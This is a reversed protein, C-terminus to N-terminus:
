CVPMGAQISALWGGAVCRLVGSGGAGGMGRGQGVQVSDNIIWAVQAVYAVSGGVAARGAVRDMQGILAGLLSSKGSGVSGVVMTLSGPLVELNVGRLSPTPLTPDWTFEGDVVQAAAAAPPTNL